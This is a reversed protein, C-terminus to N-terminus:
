RIGTGKIARLRSMLEKEEDTTKAEKLVEDLKKELREVKETLKQEKNEEKPTADNVPDKEETVYLYGNKQWVKKM